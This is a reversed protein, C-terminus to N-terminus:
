HAAGHLASRVWKVWPDDAGRIQENVPALPESMIGWQGGPDKALLLLYQAGLRYQSAYCSGRRGDPRVFTYPVPQDNFDDHDYIDGGIKLSDPLSAGYVLEDVHVIVVSYFRPPAGAQEYLVSDPRVVTVRAVAESRRVMARIWDITGRAPSENPPTVVSCRVTIPVVNSSASREPASRADIAGLSLGLAIVRSVIV